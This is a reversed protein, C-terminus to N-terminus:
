FAPGSPDRKIHVDVQLLLDFPAGSITGHMLVLDGRSEGKQGEAVLGM